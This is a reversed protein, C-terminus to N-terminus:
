ELIKRQGLIFDYSFLEFNLTVEEAGIEWYPKYIKSELSRSVEIILEEGIYLSPIDIPYVGLSDLYAFEKTWLLQKGSTFISLEYIDPITRRLYTLSIKPTNSQLEFEVVKGVVVEYPKAIMSEMNLVVETSDQNGYYCKVWFNKNRLPIILQDGKLFHLRQFDPSNSVYAEYTYYLDINYDTLEVGEKTKLHIIASFSGDDGTIEEVDKQCSLLIIM